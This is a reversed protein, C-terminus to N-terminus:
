FDAPPVRDFYAHIESESPVKLPRVVRMGVFPAEPFWWRSKPIQPDLQKWVPDSAFRRGVRLDEAESEYHGGRLVQPYLQESVVKPNINQNSDDEYAAYFDGTWEMVNGLMDYLGWPNPAKSGITSTTKNSNEIYIAYDNILNADSGFFYSENSGARAAYEWEAETPLRYFIGTKLYLWRCYQIAGYQTMGVAPKSAKGMGFTMDLYPTSPRSLGDVQHSLPKTSIGIELNKDLFLEFLDWTVEHTGMWFADLQIKRQPAEDVQHGKQESPTGMIFAGAPIPVMSFSLDTNPIKQDYPEFPEIQLRFGFLAIVLLFSGFLVMRIQNLKM